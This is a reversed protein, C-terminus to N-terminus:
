VQIRGATPHLAQSHCLWKRDPQTSEGESQRRVRARVSQSHKHEESKECQGASGVMRACYDRVRGKGLLCAATLCQPLTGGELM